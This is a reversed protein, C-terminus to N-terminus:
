LPSVCNPDMQLDNRDKAVCRLGLIKLLADRLWLAGSFGCVELLEGRGRGRGGSRFHVVHAICWWCPTYSRRVLRTTSTQKISSYGLLMVSVFFSSFADDTQM